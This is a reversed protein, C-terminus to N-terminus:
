ERGLRGETRKGGRGVEKRREGEKGEVGEARKGGKVRGERELGKCRALERLWCSYLFAPTPASKLPWSSRSFLSSSNSNTSSNSPSTAAGDAYARPRSASPRMTRLM